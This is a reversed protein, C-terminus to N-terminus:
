EMADILIFANSYEPLNYYGLQEKVEYVGIAPNFTRIKYTYATQLLSNRANMFAQHLTMGLQLNSHFRSVLLNTALDDVNWLSVVMCDVGANKLGRQIGYVGDATIYGLGTQCASIVALSVGSLDLESIERASLIGDLTHANFSADQLNTNAGALVLVSESLSEDSSCPHLDTGQPVSSAGFFGHTSLNLIPYSNGLRRFASETAQLGVLLTDKACSRLSFISDCEALTGRLYEFRPNYQQMFSYALSDNHQDLSKEVNGQYDIGGVLMAADLHVPRNEMLKRTSTLRYLCKGALSEPLMYEIALQHLYGDPSFYIKKSGALERVLDPHWIKQILASDNYLANKWKGQVAHMRNKVTKGEIKEALIEGPAMMSIWRPVGKKGLVLAAMYQRGKKEYQVFEIASSAVPLRQQIQKYNYQLSQLAKASTIGDGSLRNLQLLLGKSFLTVDYLFEPDAMELQYCDAVFPRMRMWYAERECSTMAALVDLSQKKRWEFYAKYLPLAKSVAESSDSLMWIKGQKRLAEYYNEHDKPYLELVKEIQELALASQGIRAYCLAQQTLIELYDEYIQRDGEDFYYNEYAQVAESIHHFAKKYQQQKYYLQALERHILPIKYLDHQFARENAYVSLAMVYYQEAYFYSEPDYHSNEYHYNGCLKYKDATFELSDMRGLLGCQSRLEMLTGLSDAKQMIGSRSSQRYQRNGESVVKRLLNRFDTEKYDRVEQAHVAWIICLMWGIHLCKWKM